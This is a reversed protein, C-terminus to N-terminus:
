HATLLTTNWDLRQGRADSGESELKGVCGDSLLWKTMHLNGKGVSGDAFVSNVYGKYQIKLAPLQNGVGPVDILEEAVVKATYVRRGRVGNSRQYTYEIDWSKGVYHPYSYSGSDPSYRSGLYEVDNLNLTQLARGNAGTESTISLEYGNSLVASITETVRSTVIRKWNDTTAYACFDGVKKIPRAWGQQLNPEFDTQQAFLVSPVTMLIMILIAFNKQM